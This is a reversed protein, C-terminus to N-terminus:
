INIHTAKKVKVSQIHHLHIFKSIVCFVFLSLFLETNEVFNQADFALVFGYITRFKMWFIFYIGVYYIHKTFPFLSIGYVVDLKETIHVM